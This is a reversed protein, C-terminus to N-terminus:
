VEQRVIKSEVFAIISTLLPVVFGFAVIPYLVLRIDAEYYISTGQYEIYGSVIGGKLVSLFVYLIIVGQFMLVLIRMPTRGSVRDVFYIFFFAVFGGYFVTHPMPINEVFLSLVMYPIYVFGLYAITSDVLALVLAKVVTRLPSRVEKDQM